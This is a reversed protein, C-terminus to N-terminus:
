LWDGGTIAVMQGSIFSGYPSMLFIITAAVEDPHGGRKLPILNIRQQLQEETRHHWRQHFGSNIFGLRVGNVLVNHPAGERALGQVMCETGRKAIAYPFSVPSGGHQSSENGNLIIRGGSQQAKMRRLAARALFFPMNLNVDIEKEWDAGTMDNWHGSFFIGGSLVVLGDIGGAKDCFADVLAVCQEESDLPGNLPIVRPDDSEYRQTHGHAGVVCDSGQVLMEVLPRGLGGTAGTVLIRSGAEVAPVWDPKNFVSPVNM